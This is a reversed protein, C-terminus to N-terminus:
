SCPQYTPRVVRNIQYLNPAKRAEGSVPTQREHGKDGAVGAQDGAQGLRIRRRDAVCQIEGSTKRPRHSSAERSPSIGSPRQRAEEPLAPRFPTTPRVAWCGQPITGAPPPPAPSQRKPPRPAPAPPPSERWPSAAISGIMWILRVMGVSASVGQEDHPEANALRGLHRQDGKGRHKRDIEVKIRANAAHIHPQHLGRAAKAEAAGLHDPM